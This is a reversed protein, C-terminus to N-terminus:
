TIWNLTTLKKTHRGVLLQYYICLKDEEDCVVYFNYFVNKVMPLVMEFTGNGLCTMSQFMGHSSLCNSCIQVNVSPHDLM